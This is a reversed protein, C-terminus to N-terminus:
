PAVIRGPAGNAGQPRHCGNCDGSMQPTTMVSVRDEVVVAATFPLGVPLKTYFNGAENAVMEITRGDAGAVIVKADPLGFCHDAEAGSTFM